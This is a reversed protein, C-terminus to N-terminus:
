PRYEITDVAAPGWGLADHFQVYVAHAGPNANGGYAGDALDWSIEQAVSDFSTNSFNKWTTGDNSVRFQDVEDTTDRGLVQVNVKTSSTTADIHNITVTGTAQELPAIAGKSVVFTTDAENAQQSDRSSDSKEPSEFIINNPDTVSRLVYTGDPLSGNEGLDIWQEFRYYDYTDGWGPSLGQAIVNESNPLCKAPPYAAPWVAAPVSAVFEEDEVCATTKKGVLFPEGVTRGSALWKEWATKTWLQYLGWHDFHYHKHVAHYYLTSGALEIDTSGGSSDYVRQYAQGSPPNLSMNIKARIELPGEGVNAVTNSFRLVNHLEGLSEASVDTRDFRLDRPPLTELDPYLLKAAATSSGGFVAALIAMVIAARGYM